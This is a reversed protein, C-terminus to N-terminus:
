STALLSAVVAADIEYMTHENEALFVLSYNSGDARATGSGGGANTLQLYECYWFKGNADEIIGYLYRQGAALINIAYSKEKQRRHVALNITTTAVGSGAAGTDEVLEDTYNSTKRKINTSIPAVAASLATVNFTSSSETKSIIDDMAGFYANFIGGSNRECVEPIETLTPCSM